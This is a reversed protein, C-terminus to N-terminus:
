SRLKSHEKLCETKDEPSLKELFLKDTKSWDSDKENIVAEIGEIMVGTLESDCWSTAYGSAFRNLEIESLERGANAKATSQVLSEGIALVIADSSTLEDEKLFRFARKM